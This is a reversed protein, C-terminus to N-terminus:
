GGRRALLLDERGRWRKLFRSFNRRSLRDREGPPVAEWGRHPHRAVPVPVAIARYGAARVAFSLDIDANRYWHFTERFGGVERLVDRRMALLYGEIADVEPGDAPEFERMDRSTLGFPGAIGVAPDALAGALPGIVDGTPEVSADAVVVIRGRSQRLGANRARAWGAGRELHLVRAGRHGAALEDLAGADESGAAVIIVEYDVGGHHAELARCFRELDGPFGESLLHVSAERTAPEGLASPVRAAELREPGSRPVAVGGGPTDRVDFGRAAIEERLADARAFDRAARAADREAVLARM